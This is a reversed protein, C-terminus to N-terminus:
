GRLSKDWNYLKNVIPHANEWSVNIGNMILAEAYEHQLLVLDSYVFNGDILRQWTNAINIDPSFKAITGNYLIHEEIFLHGKIIEIISSPLGTNKSINSIDTTMNTMHASFDAAQAELKSFESISTNANIVDGIHKKSINQAIKVVHNHLEEITHIDNSLSPHLKKM